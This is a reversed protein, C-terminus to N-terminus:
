HPSIFLNSIFSHTQSNVVVKTLYFEWERGVCDFAVGCVEFGM